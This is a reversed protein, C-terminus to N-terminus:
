AFEQVRAFLACQFDDWSGPECESLITNALLRDPRNKFCATQITDGVPYLRDMIKLHIAEDETDYLSDLIAKRTKVLETVSRTMDLMTSGGHGPSDEPKSFSPVCFHEKV